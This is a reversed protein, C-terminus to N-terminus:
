FPGLDWFLMFISLSLAAFGTLTFGVARSGPLGQERRARYTALLTLLGLVGAALGLWAGYRAWPVFGFLPLMESAEMTVAIATGMIGAAAVAATSALWAFFRAGGARAGKRGDM